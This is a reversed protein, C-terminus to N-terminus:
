FPSYPFLNQVYISIDSYSVLLPYIGLCFPTGVHLGVVIVVTSIMDQMYSAILHVLYFWDRLLMKMLRPSQKTESSKESIVKM